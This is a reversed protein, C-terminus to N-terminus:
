SSSQRRPCYAGRFRRYVKLVSCPVVDRFVAMKISEATFGHCGSNDNESPVIEVCVRLNECLDV